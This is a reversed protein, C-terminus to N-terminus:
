SKNGFVVQNTPQNGRYYLFGCLPLGQPPEFCLWNTLFQDHRFSSYCFCAMNALGTLAFANGFFPLRLQRFLATFALLNFRKGLEITVARLFAAVTRIAFNAMSLISKARNSPLNFFSIHLRFCSSFAMALITAFVIPIVWFFPLSMMCYAISNPVFLQGRRMQVFAFAAFLCLLVVMVLAIRRFIM